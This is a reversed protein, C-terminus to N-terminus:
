CYSESKINELLYKKLEHSAPQWTKEKLYAISIHNHVKKHNNEFIELKQNKSTFSEVLYSPLVGCGLGNLILKAVGQVDMVYARVKLKEPLSNFKQEFWM